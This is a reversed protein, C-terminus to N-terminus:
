ENDGSAKDIEARLREASWRGDPSEGTLAEYEARLSDRDSVEQTDAATVESEEIKFYGVHQYTSVHMPHPDIEITGRAPILVKEGKSNVLSYPSNTLNRIRM